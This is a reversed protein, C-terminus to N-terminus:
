YQEEEIGKGDPFPLEPDVAPAYKHNIIYESAEYKLLEGLQALDEVYKYDGNLKVAPAKIGMWAGTSLEKSGALSISEIGNTFNFSVESLDFKDIPLKEKPEDKEEFLHSIDVVEGSEMEASVKFDIAGEVISGKKGKKARTAKIAPVEEGMEVVTPQTGDYEEPIAEIFDENTIEECILALHPTFQKFADALDKHVPASCSVGTHLREDNNPLLEKFSVKLFMGATLQVKNIRIEM